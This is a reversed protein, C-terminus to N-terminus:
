GCSSCHFSDYTVDHISGRRVAGLAHQGRQLNAIQKRFGPKRVQYMGGRAGEFGSNWAALAQGYSIAAEIDALTSRRFGELGGDAIKALIGATAWDGCGASDFLQDTKYANVRRWGRTNAKPLRSRFRLGKAGLTQIELLGPRVKGTAAVISSLRESSYKVIHALLLAEKFLKPEGKGSPEFVVVAGESVCKEALLLTGRSVRDFFFVEPVSMREIVSKASDVTIAKFSPLWAGCQPCHWSFKHTAGGATTRRIVQTVVPTSCTPIQEAYELHVKWKKLDEKVRHSAADGNLRAIPYAQWDLFSMITLVNGCTGGVWQRVPLEPDASLILDLAILGTGFVRPKKQLILNM